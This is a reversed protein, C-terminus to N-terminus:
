VLEHQLDLTVGNELGGHVYFSTQKSHIWESTVIDNERTPM